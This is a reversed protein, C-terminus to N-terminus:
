RPEISGSGSIDTRVTPPNGLYEVSGSGSVDAVLSDTVNVVADGSGAIDVTGGMAELEAGAFTGSGPISVTLETTSGSVEIRGSGSISADFDTVAIAGLSIIGSGRITAELSDSEVDDTTITGSGDIAVGDLAAVGVTYIIERTPSITSDSGLTLRGDAVDSTLHSMLNDEAEITLSPTGDIDIIVTGSGELVVNTFGTVDRTESIMEGSGRIGGINITTTCAVLALVAIITLGTRRM